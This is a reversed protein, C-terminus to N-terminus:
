RSPEPSVLKEVTESLLVFVANSAQIDRAIKDATVCTPVEKEFEEFHPKVKTGAFARLFFDITDSDKASNSIFIQAV